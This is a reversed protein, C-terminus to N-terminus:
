IKLIKDQIGSQTFLLKQTVEYYLIYNGTILGRVNTFDTMIGLNPYKILLQIEKNFTNYLKESYTKSGNRDAYFKLIKYLSIKARNSWILKRKVM